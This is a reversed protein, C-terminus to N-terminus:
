IGGADGSEWWPFFCGPSHKYWYEECSCPGKWGWKLWDSWIYRSRSAISGASISGGLLAMDMKLFVCKWHCWVNAKIINRDCLYYFWESVLFVPYVLTTLAKDPALFATKWDPLLCIMALALSFASILAAFLHYWCRLVTQALFM